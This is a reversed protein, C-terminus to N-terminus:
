HLYHLSIETRNTVKFKMVIKLWLKVEYLVTVSTYNSICTNPVPQFHRFYFTPIFLILLIPFKILRPKYFLLLPIIRMGLSDDFSGSPCSDSSFSAELISTPSCHDCDSPLLCRTFAQLKADAQFCYGCALNTLLFTNICCYILTTVIRKIIFTLSFWCM